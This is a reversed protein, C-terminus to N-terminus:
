RKPLKPKSVLNPDLEIEGRSRIVPWTVMLEARQGGGNEESILVALPPQKCIEVRPLHLTSILRDSASQSTVPGSAQRSTHQKTELSADSLKCFPTHIPHVPLQAGVPAPACPGRGVTPCQPLAGPQVGHPRPGPAQLEHARPASWLLTPADAPPLSAEARCGACFGGPGGRRFTGGVWWQRTPLPARKGCKPNTWALGPINQCARQGVSHTASAAPPAPTRPTPAPWSKRDARSPSINRGPEQLRSGRM